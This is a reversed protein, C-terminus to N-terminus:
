AAGAALLSAYRAELAAAVHAGSYRQGVLRQGAEGLRARAAPDRVLRALAAALAEADGAPVLAAHEGDALVEPVVGVRSAILPRGAALCEFVVRSMGDSELPVYLVIDLAALAAPLDDVFGGISFQRGLGARDITDRVVAEMSGRGVFVFHPRVGRAGLRAAADVVVAHGKMVRLGAIMGVLPHDPRGGFRGYVEPDRPLPRYREVDAGGPLAAIRDADVLDSAIYQRRIAETVTVVFATARRYLWRNAAHPRVALAIHRTRVVPRPTSILRNAVAALWHEKGRHVHVVDTGKLLARLRGLDRSDAVPRVGSAFALTTVPEVGERRVGDMVRAETGALCALTVAHGRRELERTMRAAWYADSSWGRCSVLQLIRV